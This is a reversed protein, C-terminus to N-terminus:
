LVMMGKPVYPSKSSITAPKHQEILCCPRQHEMQQFQATDALKSIKWTARVGVLSAGWMSGGAGWKVPFVRSMEGRVVNYWGQHFATAFLVAHLRHENGEVPGNDRLKGEPSPHFSGFSCGPGNVFHQM